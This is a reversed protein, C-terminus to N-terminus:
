WVFPLRVFRLGPRQSRVGVPNLGPMTSPADPNYDLNFRVKMKVFPYHLKRLQERISSAGESELDYVYSDAQRPFRNRDEGGVIDPRSPDQHFAFGIQVNAIPYRKDGIAYTSGLGPNGDTWVEFFSRAVAVRKAGDPLAGDRADVLFTSSDNWLIRFDGVAENAADFFRLAMNTLSGDVPLVDSGISIRHCVIGRHTAASADRSAIDFIEESGFRVLGAAVKGTKPDTALYGAAPGDRLVGAFYYDPGYEPDKPDLAPKSTTSRAGLADPEVVRRISAGTSVYRSYWSSTRGYTIPLLVPKPRIDGAELWALKNSVKNGTSDLLVINDDQVNGTKDDDEGAPTLLQVIGMGGFGGRNPRGDFNQYKVLRSSGGYSTNSGFSGDATIAFNTDKDSWAGEHQHIVISSAELVVLGGAGGGGGGGQTCGGAADGGGGAGGNASVLGEPGVTITGLARVILAGAGGGGGGGKEDFGFMSGASCQADITRDGGGGGGGGGMAARMEGIVLEGESDFGRGWFDNESASDVFLSPMPSGGRVPANGVGDGGFGNAASDADYVKVFDADGVQAHSGGGGGAGYGSDTGCATEGGRGGQEPRQFPGYGDQGKRSTNTTAPSGLGGNGGSCVGQGGAVPFNAGNLSNVQGGMGGDVHLHGDIRVDGSALWVMPNSGVGRVTVGKKIRIDHIRFVGGAVDFPLGNSPVLTTYDTSLVNTAATPEYDLPTLIGDFDFSARLEGGVLDAPPDRFAAGSDTFDRSEFDFVVADFRASPQEETRFTAVVRDYRPVRVNSEGAIDRLSSEVVLRVDADNPLIGDPRLVIVSETLDNVPLSVAARIWRQKGLEPDDYELYVKGRQRSADRVPDISQRTSVNDSAPDLAQDFRIAIEVPTGGLENLSLREGFMPTADVSLVRPGGALRDRFLEQPTSGSVTRFSMGRVDSKSSLPRGDDDRLTPAADKTSSVLSVVYERGARFGGDSYADDTPLRPVFELVHRDTEGSEGKGHRFTGVVSESLPNGGADRALFAVSNFSASELDVPNSFRIRVSENLYIRGNNEPYTGLVVFAGGAVADARSAGGGCGVTLGLFSFAAVFCSCRLLVPRFM